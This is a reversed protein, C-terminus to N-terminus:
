LASNLNRQIAFINIVPDASPRPLKAAFASIV